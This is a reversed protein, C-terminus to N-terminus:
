YSSCKYLSKGVYAFTYVRNLDKIAPNGRKMPSSELSGIVQFKTKPLDLPFRLLGSITKIDMETELKGNNMHIKEYAKLENRLKEFEKETHRQQVEYLEELGLVDILYFRNRQRYLENESYFGKYTSDILLLIMKGLDTKPLPVDYLSWIMLATSGSYKYYYNYNTVETMLNLNIQLPLDKDNRDKRSVHNDFCKEDFVVSVDAWVRTATKNNKERLYPNIYLHDFCYFYQPTWGKVEKLINVSLLGDLDDSLVTDFKKNSDYWNPLKELYEKKLDKIRHAFLGWLLYLIFLNRSM